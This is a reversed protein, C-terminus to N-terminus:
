APLRPLAVKRGNGVGGRPIKMSIMTAILGVSLGHAYRPASTGDVGNVEFRYKGNAEFTSYFTLPEGPSFSRTNVVDYYEGKLRVQSILLLVLIIAVIISVNVTVFITGQAIFEGIIDSAALFAVLYLGWRKKRVLGSLAFAFLIAIVAGSILLARYDVAVTSRIGGIDFFLAMSVIVHQVIKESSLIILLYNIVSRKQPSVPPSEVVQYSTYTGSWGSRVTESM